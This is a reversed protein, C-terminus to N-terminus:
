IFNHIRSKLSILGPSIRSLRSTIVCPLDLGKTLDDGALTIRFFLEFCYAPVRDFKHDGLAFVGRSSQM